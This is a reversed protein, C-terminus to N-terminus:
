YTKNPYYSKNTYTEFHHLLPQISHPQKILLNYNKLITNTKFSIYQIIM